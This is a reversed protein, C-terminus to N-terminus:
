SIQVPRSVFIDLHPTPYRSQIIHIENVSIEVKLGAGVAQNIAHQLVAYASGITQGLEEDNVAEDM